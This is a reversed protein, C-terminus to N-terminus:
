PCASLQVVLLVAPGSTPKQSIAMSTGWARKQIAEPKGVLWFCGISSRPDWHLFAPPDTESSRPRNLGGGLNM